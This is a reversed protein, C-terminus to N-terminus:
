HAPPPMQGMPLGKMMDLMEPALQFAIETTKGAGGVQLSNLLADLRADRGALLRAASLAGNVVGRAQEGAQEDRADARIVGNVGRDVDASITFWELAPLQDRIQDPLFPQSTVSDLRGVIWANGSRQAGTVLAMLPGNAALGAAGAGTDIAQRLEGVSGVALLGPELFAIAQTGSDAPGAAVAPAAQPAVLLRKGKYQEAVAGHQAALAEIRASDFRGRFLILAGRPDTGGHGLGALVSDIDHEIDIGTEALLRDKQDGTPMVERLKQRFESAMIDKVDAYALATADAPVYGLEPLRVAAAGRPLNGNYYAVLGTCLGVVVVLVSAILFYRTRSSM